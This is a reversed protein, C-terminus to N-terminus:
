VLKESGAQRRGHPVAIAAPKEDRVLAALAALTAAKEEDTNCTLTKTQLVSGDEGLLAAWVTKSSTRLALVRQHGLPPSLLQSRLNRAYTRVAERDAREKIRRRVDRGCAEQLGHAWAHDFVLDYFDHLTTGDTLDKGHLETLLERHRQEPLGLE